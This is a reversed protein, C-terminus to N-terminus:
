KLKAGSLKLKSVKKICGLPISFPNTVVEIAGTFDINFGGCITLYDDNSDLIYGINKIVGVGDLWEDVDEKHLWAQSSNTTADVWIVEVAEFTKLLGKNRKPIKRKKTTLKQM